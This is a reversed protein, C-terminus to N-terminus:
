DIAVHHLALKAVADTWRTRGGLARARSSQLVVPTSARSRPRASIVGKSGSGTRVPSPLETHGAERLHVEGTLAGDGGLHLADRLPFPERDLEHPVLDGAPSEDDGRVHVM